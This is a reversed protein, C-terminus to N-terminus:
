VLDNSCLTLLFVSSYGHLRRKSTWFVNEGGLFCLMFVTRNEMCDAFTEAIAPVDAYSM